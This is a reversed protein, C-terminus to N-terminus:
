KEWVWDFPMREEENYIKNRQRVRENGCVKCYTSKGDHKSRNNPFEDIQKAEKCMPFYKFARLIKEM